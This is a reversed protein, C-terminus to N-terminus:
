KNYTQRGVLRLTPRDPPTQRDAHQMRTGRELPCM